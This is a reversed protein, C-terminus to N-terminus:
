LAELEEEVSRWPDAGAPSPRWEIPSLGPGSLDTAAVASQHWAVLEAELRSDTGTRQVVFWLALSAAVALAASAGATRAARRNRGRAEKALRENLSARWALGPEDEPLRRVWERVARNERHNM